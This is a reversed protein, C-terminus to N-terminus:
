KLQLDSVLWHGDAQKDLTIVARNRDITPTTSQTTTVTQDLCAVVVAHTATLSSVGFCQIGAKSVGHYKEIAPRLKATIPTYNKRFAPTLHALVGNFDADLHRYDYSGFDTAAQKAVTTVTARTGALPDSADDKRLGWVLGGAVALVLLVTLVGTAIQWPRASSPGAPGAAARAADAERLRAAKAELKEAKSPRPRPRDPTPGGATEALIEASADSTADASVEPRADSM